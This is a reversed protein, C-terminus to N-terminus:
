FDPGHHRRREFSTDDATRISKAIAAVKRPPNDRTALWKLFSRIKMVNFRRSTAYAWDDLDLYLRAIAHPHLTYRSPTTRGQWLYERIASTFQSLNSLRGAQEEIYLIGHELFHRTSRRLIRDVDCSDTKFAAITMRWEVVQRFIAEVDALTLAYGLHRAFRTLTQHINRLTRRSPRWDSISMTRAFFDAFVPVPVNRDITLKIDPSDTHTAASPGAGVDTSPVKDTVSARRVRKVLAWANNRTLGFEEVLENVIHVPPGTPESAHRDIARQRPLSVPRGRKSARAPRRRPQNTVGSPQERLWRFVQQITHEGYTVSGRADDWKARYLGSKRFLLDTRHKDMGTFFGLRAVLAADARSHDDGYDGIYGELLRNGIPSRRIAAIVADNRFWPYRQSCTDECGQRRHNTTALQTGAPDAIHPGDANLTATELNAPDRLFTNAIFSIGSQSAGLAEFGDLMRGTMALFRGHTYMELGIDDNRRESCHLSGLSCFRLGSGSPSLEVYADPLNGLIAQALESLNGNEDICDDLDGGVLGDAATFVYGIGHCTTWANNDFRHQNYHEVAQDFTAWTVEDNVKGFSGTKADVPIKTWRHEGIRNGTRVGFRWCIWRAHHRLVAPIRHFAYPVLPPLDMGIKLQELTGHTVKATSVLMRAPNFLHALDPSYAISKPLFSTNL